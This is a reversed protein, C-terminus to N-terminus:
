KWKIETIENKMVYISDVYKEVMERTLTDDIKFVESKANEIEIEEDIISIDKEIEQKVEIFKERSIKGLKYKEYSTNKKQEMKDKQLELEKLRTKRKADVDTPSVTYKEKILEYVMEELKKGNSSNGDDGRQLCIRCRFYKHERISGDSRKRKTVMCALIHGCHSCKVFKQLPSKKYWEFDSNKHPFAKANMLARVEEFDKKSIIAEHNDFVRGWEEKPKFKADGGLISKNQMNFVYTGTYNENMLIDTVTGNTWTNRHNGDHNIINYGYDMNTLEKKRDNPTIHGEENMMLAIKRTSLGKLALEYVRKVIPATKEDVIIKHKDEPDKMYGLPPSWALFKGQKKLATTSTKIKESVDKSYFDYLLSKFQIDLGTGNGKEKESDYGDNVSIFRIGMFPFINDLYDGLLIYDRIFRSLDKVIICSVKGQKVEELLRQVSPRNINVGTYGDDIYEERKMQKLDNSQLIYDTIILRQSSISESEVRDGFEEVSLRMYIALKSM